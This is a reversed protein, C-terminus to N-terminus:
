AVEEVAQEPANLMAELAAEVWKAAEYFEETIVWELFAAVPTERAFEEPTAGPEKVATMRVLAAYVMGDLLGLASVMMASALKHLAARHHFDVVIQAFERRAQKIADAEDASATVLVAREMGSGPGCLLEIKLRFNYRSATGDENHCVPEFDFNRLSFAVFDLEVRNTEQAPIAIDFFALAEPLARGLRREDAEQQEREVRAAEEREARMEREIRVAEQMWDPYTMNVIEGEL